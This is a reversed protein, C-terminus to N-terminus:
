EQVLAMAIDETWHGDGVFFGSGPGSCGDGFMRPVAAALFQQIVPQNKPDEFRCPNGARLCRWPVQVLISDMILKARSIAMAEAYFRDTERVTSHLHAFVPLLLFSMILFAMLVEVLVFGRLSGISRQPTFRTPRRQV